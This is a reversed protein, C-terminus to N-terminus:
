SGYNNRGQLLAALGQGIPKGYGPKNAIMAKVLSNRISESSLAKNALRAGGIVGTAAAAGLLPHITTAAGFISGGLLSALRNGTKPNAMLSLAEENMGRLNGFDKLQQRINKDPFLAKMQNPRLKSILNALAKVNVNGQNDISPSLYHYGILSKENDPLVKMLKSALNARDATKSPKVFSQVITDPDKNGGIYKYIDRDLYPSFNKSYNEEATNFKAKLEPSGSEDITNKIDSKLSSALSHYVGAANRSAADPSNEALKAFHRLKGSLINAEELSPHVLKTQAPIPKEGTLAQMINPKTVDFSEPSTIEKVPNQYGAVKNFLKATDPDYKLMNTSDIASAYDKAKQAFTPLNLKLNDKAAQDNASQYFANKQGQHSEFQENLKDAIKATAQEPDNNGLLNSLLKEGRDQITAATRQLSGTTGSLPIKELSNEQFKKLTPSGIVSGLPTETGAAAEVNAQLQEPSLNGRLLKSTRLADLASGAGHTLANILGSEIAGGTRGSPLLGFANQEGSQTQTGGFGLGAAIQGALRGGKSIGLKALGRTALAEPAAMAFPAYQALGSVVKGGITQDQPALAQSAQGGFPTRGGTLGTVTNAIGEGASGLGSAINRVIDFPSQGNLGLQAARDSSSPQSASTSSLGIRNNFDAKDLQPYFKAHLKDALEQDSFHDYQPYKSRIEAISISM